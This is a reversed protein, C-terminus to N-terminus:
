LLIFFFIKSSDKKKLRRKNNSKLFSLLSACHSRNSASRDPFQRRRRSSFDRTDAFMYPRHVSDPSSNYKWAPTKDCSSCPTSHNGRWCWLSSEAENCGPPHCSVTEWPRLCVVALGVLRPTYYQFFFVFKTATSNKRAELEEGLERKM